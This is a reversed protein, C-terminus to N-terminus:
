VWVEVKVAVFRGQPNLADAVESLVVAVAVFEEAV